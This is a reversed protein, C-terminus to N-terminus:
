LIILPHGATPPILIPLPFRLLQIFCAGTDTQGDYDRIVQGPIPVPCGHRFPRRTTQYQISVHLCLMDKTTELLWAM